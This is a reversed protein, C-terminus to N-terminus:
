CSLLGDWNTRQLLSNSYSRRKSPYPLSSITITKHGYIGNISVLIRSVPFDFPFDLKEDYSCLHDYIVSLQRRAVSYSIETEVALDKVSPIKLDEDNYYDKATIVRLLSAYEPENILLKKARSRMSCIDLIM